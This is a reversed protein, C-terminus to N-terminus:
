LHDAYRYGGGFGVLSVVANYADLVVYGASYSDGRYFTFNLSKSITSM